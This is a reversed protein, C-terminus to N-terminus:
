QMECLGKSVANKGQRLKPAVHFAGAETQVGGAVRPVGGDVRDHPGLGSALAVPSAVCRGRSVVIV